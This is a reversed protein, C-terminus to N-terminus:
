EKMVLWCTESNTQINTTTSNIVAVLTQFEIQDFNSCALADTYISAAPMAIVSLLM